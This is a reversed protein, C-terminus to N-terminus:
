RFQCTNNHNIEAKGPSLNMLEDICITSILFLMLIPNFAIFYISNTSFSLLLYNLFIILYLFYGSQTIISLPLCVFRCRCSLRTTPFCLIISNILTSIIHIYFPYLISLDKTSYKQLKFKVIHLLFRLNINVDFLLLCYVNIYYYFVFM